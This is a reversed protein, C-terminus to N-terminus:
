SRLINKQLESCLLFGIPKVTVHAKTNENRKNVFKRGSLQREVMLMLQSKFYYISQM